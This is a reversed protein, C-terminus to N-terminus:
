TWAHGGPALTPDDCAVSPFPRDRATSRACDGLDHVKYSRGDPGTLLNIERIRRWSTGTASVFRRRRERPSRLGGGLGRAPSETADRASPRVVSEQASVVRGRVAAAAFRAFPRGAARTGSRSTRLAGLPPREQRRRGATGSAARTVAVAARLRLRDLVGRDHRASRRAAPGDYGGDEVDLHSGPAPRDRRPPAWSDDPRGRALGPGVDAALAVAAFFLSAPSEETNCHGAGRRTRVWRYSGKPDLGNWAASVHDCFICDDVPSVRVLGRSKGVRPKRIKVSHAVHTGARPALVPVGQLGDPVLGDDVPTTDSAAPTLPPLRPPAVEGNWLRRASASSSTPWPRSASQAPASDVALGHRANPFFGELVM